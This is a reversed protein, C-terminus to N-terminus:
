VLIAEIGAIFPIVLVGDLEVLARLKSFASASGKRFHALTHEFYELTVTM